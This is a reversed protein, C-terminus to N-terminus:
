VLFPVEGESFPLSSGVGHVHNKQCTDSSFWIEMALYQPVGSLCISAELTKGAAWQVLVTMSILDDDSDRGKGEGERWRGAQSDWGVRPCLGQLALDLPSVVDWTRGQLSERITLCVFYHLMSESCHPLHVNSPTAKGGRLEQHETGSQAAQVPLTLKHSRPPTEAKERPQSRGDSSM